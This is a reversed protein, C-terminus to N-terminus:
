KAKTVMHYASEVAGIPSGPSTILAPEYLILSNPDDSERLIDLDYAAPALNEM